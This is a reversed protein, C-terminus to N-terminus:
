LMKKTKDAFRCDQEYSTGRMKLEFINFILVIIFIIIIINLDVESLIIIFILIDVNYIFFILNYQDYIKIM